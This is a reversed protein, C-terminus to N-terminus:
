ETRAHFQMELMVMAGQLQVSQTEQVHTENKLMDYATSQGPQSDDLYAAGNQPSSPATLANMADSSSAASDGFASLAANLFAGNPSSGIASPKVSVVLRGLNDYVGTNEALVPWLFWGSKETDSVTTWSTDSYYRRTTVKRHRYKGVLLIKVPTIQSGRATVNSTVPAYLVVTGTGSSSDETTASTGTGTAKQSWRYADQAEQYERMYGAYALKYCHITVSYEYYVPAYQVGSTNQVRNTTYPEDSYVFGDEGYSIANNSYRRVDSSEVKWTDALSCIFNGGVLCKAYYAPKAIEAYLSAVVDKALPRGGGVAAAMNAIGPRPFVDVGAAFAGQVAVAASLSDTYGVGAIKAPSSVVSTGATAALYFGSYDVVSAPLWSAYPMRSLDKVANDFAGGASAHGLVFDREEFAERLFMADDYRLATGSLGVGTVLNSELPRIFRYDEASTLSLAVAFVAISSLATM